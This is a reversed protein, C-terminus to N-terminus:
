GVIVDEEPYRLVARSHRRQIALALTLPGIRGAFMAVIVLLKGMTSLLPTLGTSLGVTGWASSAEFLNDALPAGNTACLLLTWVVVGATFLSAVAVARHRVEEPVARRGINVRDSGRVMAGLVWLCVAFTSTKMGGGTSGPSAGICMYLVTFLLAAAGFEGIPVTNFGATRPTVSQFVCALAQEGAGRGALVGGRELVYVAAVGLAILAASAVLVLRSHLALPHRRGQLRCRAWRHLDQVVPFGLGGIVILACIVLNMYLSGAYRELSDSFLSFGANCFASVSHFVGLWVAQGLPADRVFRATLLLAGVAETAVTFLLIRRFLAVFGSEWDAGLADMVVMRHRLSIRRGTLLAFAGSLTMIGLGGVQLLALIIAQGLPSFDNPTDLVILGTVCTASTSTFLSDSLALGRPRRHAKDICLAAAGLLIVISFSMVVVRALVTEPPTRPGPGARLRRLCLAVRLGCFLVALRAVLGTPQALLSAGTEGLPRHLPDPAFLSAFASLLAALLNFVVLVALVTLGACVASPLPFSRRAEAAATRARPLLAFAFSLLLAADVMRQVLPLRFELRYAGLLLAAGAAAVVGWAVPQLSLLRQIAEPDTRKARVM